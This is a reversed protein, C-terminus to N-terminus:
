MGLASRVSNLSAQMTAISANLASYQATLATQRNDLGEQLASQQSTLDGIQRNLSNKRSVLLGDYNGNTNTGSTELGTIYNVLNAGPGNKLMNVVSSPNTQIAQVFKTSDFVLQGANNTLTSGQTIGIAALPSSDLITPSGNANYPATIQSLLGSQVSTLMSDPGWTGSKMTGITTVVKNYANVFNQVTTTIQSTDMQVNVASTGLKNLTLTLGQMGNTVTNSQSQQQVGNITYLANTAAQTSSSVSAGANTNLATSLDSDVTFAGAQSGTQQGMLVLNYSTAQGAGNLVPSVLASVGLGAKNIAAALDNLSTGNTNASLDIQKAPTSGNASLITVVRNLGSIAATPDTVNLGSLTTTQPAALQSVNIQYQGAPTTGDSTAAVVSTDSSSTTTAQLFSTSTMAQMASKLSDLSSQFTGLSSIQSNLKSIQSKVANIPGQYTSMMQSVLTTIDIGLGNPTSYSTSTTTM